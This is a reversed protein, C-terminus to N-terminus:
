LLSRSHYRRLRSYKYDGFDPIYSKKKLWWGGVMWGDVMLWGVVLWWGGVM